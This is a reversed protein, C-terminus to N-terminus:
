DKKKQMCPFDSIEHTLHSVNSLYQVPRYGTTLNDVYKVCTSSTSCKFHLGSFESFIFFILAVKDTADGQARKSSIDPSHPVLRRSGKKGRGSVSRFFSSVAFSSFLCLYHIRTLIGQLNIYILWILSKSDCTHLEGLALCRCSPNM